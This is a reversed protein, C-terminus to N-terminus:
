QKIIRETQQQDNNFLRIIYMGRSHNSLDIRNIGKLGTGILVIRGNVDSLQYQYKTSANVTVEDRVLTSVSFLKESNDGGKLAITNSYVTQDLVSTVKLRYYVTSSNYPQYAFKDASPGVTTLPSFNSGNVSTEVVITKIAEDAVINWSLSHRNKDVSGSLKVEHIPLGAAGSFSYAGLSGYEGTNLNGTGDIKLYYTGANLVTDINVYMSGSPDYTRILTASANYLEIKIDLNAGIYNGGVNYPVAALHFNSNQTLNFKFADKDANAGIVGNVSFNSAPLTYTAANLTENYDDLRYTFGNQTAIISLNDQMNTCGYPTPGNNWNSMNRYYSNGMIPAWGTEGSGFGTNYQEIPTVCNSGDYKSQHALGVAHGSEHSCAEGVMKPSFPGLLNSFVFGPTDDGWTFSGIYAVGGVGPCWGSTTTIIIRIRKNLPAMLFVASDTTINIDFPRYDEAVRNFAETIQPDTMGSAACSFSAGANWVTSQVYHGDFDLFITAVASPYSNLKPLSFANSSMLLGIACLMLTFIRKM